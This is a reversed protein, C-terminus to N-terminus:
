DSQWAESTTRFTRDHELQPRISREGQRDGSQKRARMSVNSGVGNDAPRGACSHRACRDSRDPLLRRSRKRRVRPFASWSWRRRRCHACRRAAPPCVRRRSSRTASARSQFIRGLHCFLRDIQDLCRLRRVQRSRRTSVRRTATPEGSPNHLTVPPHSSAPGVELNNRPPTPRSTTRRSMWDPLLPEAQSDRSWSHRIGM